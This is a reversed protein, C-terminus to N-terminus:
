PASREHPGRVARRVPHAAPFPAPSVPFPRGRRPAGQVACAESLAAVLPRRPAREATGNWRHRVGPLLRDILPTTLALAALAWLLANTRHLGFQIWVALAAVLFAFLVRGARSDPTTRPDSIMFFTFILFAGNQLHHLPIAAPLGLWAARAFVIGTYSALFAYTVDSRAARNVVLGGVCALLFAFFAVSGWQGPSVWGLGALLMVIIGFNTPNFVHKDGVRLFFKAAITVVAALAMAADSNVRLLMALGLASILPSRPDFGTRGTLRMCAWQTVVCGLIAVVIRSPTVAFDLRM